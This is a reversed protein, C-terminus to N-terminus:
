HSVILTNVGVPAFGDIGFGGPMAEDAPRPPLPVMMTPGQVQGSPNPILQGSEAHNRLVHIADDLREEIRTQQQLLNEIAANKV